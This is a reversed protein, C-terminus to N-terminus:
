SAKQRFSTATMFTKPTTPEANNIREPHVVVAGTVGGGAATTAGSNTPLTLECGPWHKKRSGVPFTNM